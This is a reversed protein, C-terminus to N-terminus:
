WSGTSIHANYALYWYIYIYIYVMFRITNEYVPVLHSAVCTKGSQTMMNIDTQQTNIPAQACSYSQIGQMPAQPQASYPPPPPPPPAPQTYNNGWQNQVGVGGTSTDSMYTNIANDSIFWPFCWVYLLLLLLLCQFYYFWILIDTMWILFIFILIQNRKENAFLFVSNFGM